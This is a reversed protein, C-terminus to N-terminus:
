TWVPANPRKRPAKSNQRSLAAWPSEKEDRQAYKDAGADSEQAGGGAARGAVVLERAKQVLAELQPDM